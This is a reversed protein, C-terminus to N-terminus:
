KLEVRRWHNGEKNSLYIWSEKGVAIFGMKGRPAVRYIWGYKIPPDAQVDKFNKGGDSSLLLTANGGIILTGNKNTVGFLHTKSIGNTVKQWTRGGDMTKAVYGDIGLIWAVMPNVAIVDFLFNGGMIEGTKESFRFEGAQKRWTMGGNNTHYIYGYEGVAWGNYEDCFSVSKLIFDEDKFQIKWTEGGDETFLIHTKETVIWGKKSNIFYVGMLFFPVPSKQNIWSKGGDNSHIITGEDGVAWGKLTDVFFISSLTYETGSQQRTWITGSDSTSLIAGFRGCIWGDRDTSFNVSFLDPQLYKNQAFINNPFLIFSVIIILIERLLWVRIFRCSLKKQNM